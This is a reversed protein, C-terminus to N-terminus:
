KGPKIIAKGISRVRNWKVGIIFVGTLMIAAAMLSQSTVLEDRFYWGLFLALVPHVYTSSAVKDPTVMQLLYNFAIFVLAAGPVILYFLAFWARNTIKSWDIIWSEFFSSILLIILGGAFMQITTNVLFSKPIDAKGVFVSAFAWTNLCVLTVLIAWWQDSSAVLATQNVLLFAGVIGLLVGLFSQLPPRKQNVGWMMLVTFLPQSSILLAVFGSDLHQLVWAVGGSGISIFMIGVLISNKVQALTIEKFHGMVYGILFLIFSAVGYRIGALFLPPFEEVAFAIFLYTSGWVVYITLFALLILLTTRSLTNKM